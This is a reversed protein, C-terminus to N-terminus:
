FSFSAGIVVDGRTETELNYDTEVYVEANDFIGYGVKFDLTPNTDMFVFEDNYIMLDTSLTFDMGYLGYGMEPTLEVTMNEADVNYEATTTAGLSIGTEGLEAAQITTASALLAAATIAAFKM